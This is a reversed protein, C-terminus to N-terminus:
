SYWHVAQPLFVSTRCRKSSGGGAVQGAQPPATLFSIEEGAKWNLPLRGAGVAGLARVTRAAGGARRLGAFAGAAGCIAGAGATAIAGGSAGVTGGAGVAGGAGVTGSARVV